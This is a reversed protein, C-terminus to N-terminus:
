RKSKLKKVDAMVKKKAAKDKDLQANFKDVERCDAYYNDWTQKSASAKPTKKYKKYKAM